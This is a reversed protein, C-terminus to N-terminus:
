RWPGRAVFGWPHRQGVINEVACAREGQVEHAALVLVPLAICWSGGAQSM